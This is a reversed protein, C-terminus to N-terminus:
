AERTLGLLHCVCWVLAAIAAIGVLGTMIVLVGLVVDGITVM